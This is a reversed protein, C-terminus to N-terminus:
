RLVFLCVFCGAHQLPVHHSGEYEGIEKRKEVSINGEGLVCVCLSGGMSGTFQTYPM